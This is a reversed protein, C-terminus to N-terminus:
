RKVDKRKFGTYIRPKFVRMSGGTTRHSSQRYEDEVKGRRRQILEFCDPFDDLRKAMSVITAKGVKLFNSIEEVTYGRKILEAVLVRRGLKMREDFTLLGNIIREVENGDKAALFADRVRNLAEFVEKEQLFKYRKM